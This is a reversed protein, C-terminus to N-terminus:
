LWLSFWRTCEACILYLVQYYNPINGDLLYNCELVDLGQAEELGRTDCLRFNLATGSRVKVKYPTYKFSFYFSDTDTFDTDTFCIFDVFLLFGLDSVYKKLCCIWM